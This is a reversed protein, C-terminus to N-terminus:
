ADPMISWRILERSLHDPNIEGGWETWGEMLRAAEERTYRGSIAVIDGEFAVPRMFAWEFSGEGVCARCFGHMGEYCVVCVPNGCRWCTRGDVPTQIPTECTRCLEAM